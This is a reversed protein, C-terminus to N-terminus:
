QLHNCTHSGHNEAPNPGGLLYATPVTSGPERPQTCFSIQYPLHGTDERSKDPVTHQRTSKGFTTAFARLQQKDNLSLKEMAKELNMVQSNPPRSTDIVKDPYYSKLGTYLHFHGRYM